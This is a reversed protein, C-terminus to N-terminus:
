TFDSPPNGPKMFITGPTICNSDFYENDNNYKALIDGKMQHEKVSRFRRVRQQEMKGRPAVGDIALYLMKDPESFEILKLIYEYIMNFSKREFETLKSLNNIYSSQRITQNHAKVDQPNQAEIKKVCPHILCNMDLYLNNLNISLNELILNPNKNTIHRFFKPIGM